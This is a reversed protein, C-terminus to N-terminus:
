ENKEDSVPTICTRLRVRADVPVRRVFSCGVFRIVSTMEGRQRDAKRKAPSVRPSAGADGDDDDDDPQVSIYM